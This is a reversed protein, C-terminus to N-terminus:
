KPVFADNVLLTFKENTDFRSVKLYDSLELQEEIAKDLWQEKEM